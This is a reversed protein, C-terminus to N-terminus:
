PRLKGEVYGGASNSLVCQRYLATKRDILIAKRVDVEGNFKTGGSFGQKAEASWIKTLGRSLRNM